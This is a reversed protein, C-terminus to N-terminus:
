RCYSGRHAGSQMNYRDLCGAATGVFAFNGCRSVCVATVEGTAERGVAQLM